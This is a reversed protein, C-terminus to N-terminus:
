IGSPRFLLKFNVVDLSIKIFRDLIQKIIDTTGMGVVNVANKDSQLTNFTYTNHDNCGTIKYLLTGKLSKIIVKKKDMYKSSFLNIIKQNHLDETLNDQSDFNFRLHNPKCGDLKYGVFDRQGLRYKIYLMLDIPHKEFYAIPKVLLTQCQKIIIGNENEICKECKAERICKIYFPVSTDSCNNVMDILSAAEIEFWPEPRAWEDTKHTNFIEFIGVIENSYLYAVDAVKDSYNYKFRYEICVKSDSSIEPIEYEECKDNCTRCIRIIIMKRTELLLKMLMKADKHVQAESPKDYYYCPSYSKCHAFHHARITGQKLLLDKNCEPCIYTDYKKAIKPYVYEGTVKHLAGLNPIKHKSKNM